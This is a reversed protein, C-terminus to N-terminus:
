KLVNQLNNEMYIKTQLRLTRYIGSETERDPMYKFIDRKKRNSDKQTLKEEWQAYM